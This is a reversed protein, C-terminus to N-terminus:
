IARLRNFFSTIETNLTEADHRLDESAENLSNASQATQEAAGAVGVVNASVQQTGMAAQNINRAIDATTAGQQEMASAIGAAITRMDGVVRAINDIAEVARQTERQIGTVYSQIEDTAKTTQSALTKVESAVVAFGKGAEGARAAEITANLALLNTQSAIDSIVQIISGINQAAESLGGMTASTQGAEHVAREAIDTSRTVQQNVEGVAAALEEAASAIMQVNSTTESAAQNVGDILGRSQQAMGALGSSHNRVKESADVLNGVIHAAKDQFDALSKEVAVQRREKAEQEAQQARTLEQARLGNRKFVELAQALRGMENRDSLLPIEVALDGDALQGMRDTMMTLPRAISRALLVAVVSGALLIAAALLLMKVLIANFTEDIDDIYVGTGLAWQWPEFGLSYSLKPVNVAEGGNVGPRSFNYTFFGGGKKAAEVGLRVTEVGDATKFGMRNKGEFDRKAHVVTMGDYNNVYIYEGNGFRLKRIDDGAGKQAQERTMEGSQERDHWNQAIGRVITLIQILEQQRDQVLTTRLTSLGSGVALILAVALVPVFLLLRHSIKLNSLM